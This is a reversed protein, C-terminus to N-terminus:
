PVTKRSYALDGSAVVNVYLVHTQNDGSVWAADTGLAFADDGRHLHHDTVKKASVIVNGSDDIVMAWTGQYTIGSSSITDKEWREWLVVYHHNGVSVLKPREAHAINGEATYNTLWQLHNTAAVGSSTISQTDPLMSDLFQGNEPLSSFNSLIRVLGLERSGSIQGLSADLPTIGTTRESAFLALYGVNGPASAASVVDGLRTRTNNDGEDGKISFLSWEGVAPLRNLVVTRPYADGLHMELIGDGDPVLRQDFSHSVWISATSTIAGTAANLRTTLAKQHRVGSMYETNIGHVVAVTGGAVALRGSSAVMPNIIQEAKSDFAHRAPDLDVSYITHGDAGVKYVQVIGSRYDGPAPYSATISAGENIATAVYYDGATDRAFGVTRDLYPMKWARAVAYTNSQPTLRLLYATKPKAHDTVLVDIANSDPQAVIEPPIGYNANWDNPGLLDERDADFPVLGLAAVTTSPITSPSTSTSGGNVSVSCGSTLISSLCLVSIYAINRDLM